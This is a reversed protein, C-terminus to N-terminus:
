LKHRMDQALGSLNGNFGRSLAMVKFLEGMEHPMTLTKIQHVAQLYDASGPEFQGLLQELGSSILFFGQTTYALVDMGAKDAERALASFNVHATIDQLGPYILPDDHSRHRYHCILTGQQRQPHYYERENFGYDIVFLVGQELLEALSKIWAGMALNIETDYPVPLDEPLTALEKELRHDSVPGTEWIFHEQQWGVYFESWGEETKRLRHVAFADLVENALVVGRFGKEPLRDLWSIRSAIQPLETKLLAQQRQRLDASLELIYYHRPLSDLQALRRLIELAMRGSGAGFELIDPAHAAPELQLFVQQCQNALCHSFLPSIEPATVFDGEAGFKRSGATYYGLGPATLASEMYQAFPIKGGAQQIQRRLYDVLRLSHEQAQVPPHPLQKVSQQLQRKDPM